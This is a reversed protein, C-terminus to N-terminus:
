SLGGGSTSQFSSLCGLNSSFYEFRGADTRGLPSDKFIAIYLIIGNHCSVIQGVTIDPFFTKTTAWSFTRRPMTYVRLPILLSSIKLYLIGVAVGKM